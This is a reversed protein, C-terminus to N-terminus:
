AQAAAPESWDLTPFTAEACARWSFTRARNRAALGETARRGPDSAYALIASSLAAGDQQPVLTGTDAMVEPIGGALTAVSPCGQAAAELLVLGFGERRGPLDRAALVHCASRAYLRKLDDQSVAGPLVLRVGAEAAIRELEAPYADTEARGAAAFVLDTRGALARIVDAQGKRPELRGVACVVTADADIAALAPHEFPGDVADFWHPEVGLPTVRGAAADPLAAQFDALTSRSNACIAEAGLYARRAIRSAPSRSSLKVVESGHIMATFARGHLPKLLSLAVVSRIDAALMPWDRPASALAAVLRPFALPSIQHHGLLRRADRDAPAGMGPYAPAVVLAGHGQARVEAVLRSAYTGIGGPFPEYECTVVIVGSPSSASM